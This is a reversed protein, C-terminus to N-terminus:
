ARAPAEDTAFYAFPGIDVSGPKRLAGDFDREPAELSTGAGICPSGARLHYDGRGSQHYDVFGPDVELTGRDVLGNQLSFAKKTNEFVLNNEYHDQLGTEGMEVAGYGINSFLINNVVTCRDTVVGGPADGAGLVLGGRRCAFVLNNAVVSDMVAHWGHIGWGTVNYVINNVVRNGGTAIYIGHIFNCFVQPGIDHILNGEILVDDVLYDERYTVIGAGGHNTVQWAHPAMGHIHNRLIRTHSGKVFIGYEYEGYVEFGEVVVHDADVRIPSEFLMPRISAKWKVDSVFRVPAEATGGRVIWVLEPYLGPAVHVTTGPVVVDAAKQITAFPNAQSGDNGDQGTPSVFLELPLAKMDM